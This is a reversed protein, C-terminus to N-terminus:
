FLGLHRTCRMHWSTPPGQATRVVCSPGELWWIGDKLAANLLDRRGQGSSTAHALM